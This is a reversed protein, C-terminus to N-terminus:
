RTLHEMAVMYRHAQTVYEKEKLLREFDTEDRVRDTKFEVITWAGKRLFLAEVLESEVWADAELGYPVEEAAKKASRSRYVRSPRQCSFGCRKLLQLGIMAMCGSRKFGLRYPAMPVTRM